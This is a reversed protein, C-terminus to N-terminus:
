NRIYICAHQTDICAHTHTAVPMNTCNWIQVKSLDRDRQTQSDRDTETQKETERHRTETDTQRHRLCSERQTQTHKHIQTHTHRHTNTYRHTPRSDGSFEGQKYESQIDFCDRITNELRHTQPHTHRHAVRPHTSSDRGRITRSYRDREEKPTEM